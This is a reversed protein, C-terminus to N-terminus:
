NRGELLDILILDLEELLFALLGLLVLLIPLLHLLHVEIAGNVGHQADIILAPNLDLVQALVPLVEQHDLVADVLLDVEDSEVLKLKEHVFRLVLRDNLPIFRQRAVVM